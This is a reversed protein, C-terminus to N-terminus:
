GLTEKVQLASRSDERRHTHRGVGNNAEYITEVAVALDELGRVEFFFLEAGGSV